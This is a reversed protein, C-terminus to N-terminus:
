QGRYQLSQSVGQQALPDITLPYRAGAADVLLAFGGGAPEFRADLVRGDADWAKLGGYTLATAGSDDVFRIDRDGAEVKPRLGGLVALEFRLTNGDGEPRRHVTYGHELGRGDNVFWEELGESWRYVARQGEARMAARDAVPAVAEAAGWARLALGWNRPATIRDPSFVRAM